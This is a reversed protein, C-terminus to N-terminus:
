SVPGGKSARIERLLNMALCSSVEARAWKKWWRLVLGGSLQGAFFAGVLVPFTYFAWGLGSFVRLAIVFPVPIHIALIWQRSLKEVNARWYGFPINLFFVVLAVTWLDM